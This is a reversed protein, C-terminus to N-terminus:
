ARAKRKRAADRQADSMDRWKGKTGVMQNQATAEEKHGAFPHTCHM